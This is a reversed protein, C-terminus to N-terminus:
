STHEYKDEFMIKLWSLALSFLVYLNCMQGWTHLSMVYECDLVGIMWGPTLIQCIAWYDGRQWIHFACCRDIEWRQLPTPHFHRRMDRRKLSAQEEYNQLISKQNNKHNNKGNVHNYDKLVNNEQSKKSWKATDIKRHKKTSMMNTM